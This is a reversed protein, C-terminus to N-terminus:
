TVWNVDTEHEQEGCFHCKDTLDDTFFLLFLVSFILAHTINDHMVNEYYKPLKLTNVVVLM